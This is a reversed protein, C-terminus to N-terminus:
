ELIVRSGISQIPRNNPEAMLDSFAKIQAASAQQIQKIVIWRVGETCPPTTLSGNYRYYDLQSPLFQQAIQKSQLQTTDSQKKPLVKWIQELKPNHSGVDFMLAVVALEGQETAHVLHLEMPFSKGLIQNESPSHLHFQKLEFLRDDLALTAGQNFEVQITHGHNVVSKATTNYNFKLPSLDAQITNQIDIPSQNVGSCAHYSENIKSWQEPSTYNWDAAAFVCTSLLFTSFFLGNKFLMFFGFNIFINDKGTNLIKFM